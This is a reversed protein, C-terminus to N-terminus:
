KKDKTNWVPSFHQIFLTELASHDVEMKMSGIATEVLVTHVSPTYGYVTIDGHKAIYEKIHKAHKRGTASHGMWGGRHQSFRKKIGHGAEGIYLNDGWCYIQGKDEAFESETINYNVHGKDDIYLYGAERFGIQKLEDLM